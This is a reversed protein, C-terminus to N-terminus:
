GAQFAADPLERERRVPPTEVVTDTDPPTQRGGALIADAAVRWMSQFQKVSDLPMSELTARMSEVQFDNGYARVGEAIATDVSDKFYTNGMDALRRLRPLDKIIREAEALPDAPTELKAAEFATRLATAAREMDDDDGNGESKPANEIEAARGPVEPNTESTNPPLEVSAQPSVPPEIVSDETQRVAEPEPPNVASSNDEAVVAPVEPTVETNSLDSMDKGKTAQTAAANIREMVRDAVAESNMSEVNIVTTAPLSPLRLRYRAELLRVSEPKVRQEPERQSAERIEFEAKRIAAGPTAGDYVASVESLHSNEVWATCIEREGTKEGNKDVKDYEVGPIHWCDWSWLDNGCITCRFMGGYFGISVDSIIGARVGKIFEDSPVKNTFLGRLTYFDATVKAVGNGSSGTFTGTISRGLAQERADHGTLFAVGEAAEDAYNKLSTKHMRTFYSDLQNNSIVASWFYPEHEEFIEPDRAQKKALKLLEESSTTARTVTAPYAFVDSGDYQEVM